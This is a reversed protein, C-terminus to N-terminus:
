SRYHSTLDDVASRAEPQLTFGDSTASTTLTLAGLVADPDIALGSPPEQDLRVGPHEFPRADRVVPAGTTNHVVVRSLAPAEVAWEGVTRGADQAPLGLMAALHDLLLDPADLHAAIRASLFTSGQFRPNIETFHAVDHKILADVGFIGRYREAHLWRGVTRGLADLSGLAADGLAALAAFDNGCYGFPRTTVRDVGILQVSAPHLTVTGDAFVCGSLNVPVADALYPAIAIFPETSTPWLRELDAPEHALAIGVGGSSRSVRLVHPADNMLRAARHRHADAVYQWGLGRVGEKVLSTEVWPKHEFPAQRDRHAAALIMSDGMSFALASALASPRYAMLVCPTSVDRMLGDRFEQVGVAGLPEDDFDYTDLDPRRGILQELSVNRHDHLRASRMPATVAHSARLEPFQLLSEGDEGRIGFWILDRGALRARIAQVARDAASM